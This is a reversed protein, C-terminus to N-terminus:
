FRQRYKLYFFRGPIDYQYDFNNAFANQALPPEKAFLNNVGLAVTANWPANYRVQLDHYTTSALQNKMKGPDSCYQKFDPKCEETLGSKYRLAWTAGFDGRSWDLSLNSRIRWYPDSQLYIGNRHEVPSKSDVQYDWRSTYTSDWSIAFRGFRTEPLRYNLTLDYGEVLFQAANIPRLQIDTILGPRGPYNPDRKILKCYIAQEAATGGYCKDVVFQATPTSIANEIKIQYWDLSVDLGPAWQPSYVFGLTKNTSTEAELKSNGGATFPETTQPNPGSGPQRFNGPVGDALCKADIQPNSRKGSHTSCPDSYRVFTDGDGRYMDNISPARFGQSWNGRVMLDDIPKWRFGFKSNLTDGFTSYDSRRTAISFDLLRAFPLDKLVPVSLELFLENLNYGGRTPKSGNGTSLGAAIFADPEFSGSESRYEYGAALALPGAPLDFLEGSVNFTYGKSIQTTSDHATFKAADIAEQSISGEPGLPNIPVCDEIIAGPRGCRARGNGDIFSPGYAKRLKDLNYLGYTLDNQDTRDYRYGADWDFRRSGLDFYGEFGGYFHYTKANQNFSRPGGEFFRRNVNRLDRPDATGKTPNYISDKDLTMGTVPMYALQQSSERQNFFMESRFTIQEAIDFTGQAFLSTREQPTLLYNFPATNVGHKNEDYPVFQKNPGLVYQKNDRPDVFSGPAGTTSFGSNFPPGGKSIERDGAMVEEEKVYAAGILLSGREGNMGITFDYAERAGDGQGFQGLYAGAEAGDFNRRTVINVVGAIADSGYITSAGDKLVEIREIISTPISNLDVNGGLGTGWRRGNVLVLTRGSGLNRLSVTSEGDNGNNITTNLGAGNSSIRQLVDAVSTLGQKEIEARNLSFVPQSTDLDARKIRSGVVEVRDLTTAKADPTSAPATQAMAPAAAAALAAAIHMPLAARARIPKRTHNM